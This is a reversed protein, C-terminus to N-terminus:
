QKGERVIKGLIGNVFSYSDNGGYKKALEVAENIAVGEPISEDYKLEYVALRLVTLDVKAMRSTKWGKSFQNLLEDIEPLYKVVSEYRELVLEQEGEKPNELEEFYLAITEPMELADNFQSMFLLKFTHERIDRRGM